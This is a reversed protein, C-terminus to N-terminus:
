QRIRKTEEIKQYVKNPYDELEDQIYFGLNQVKGDELWQWEYVPEQPKIRVEEFSVYNDKWLYGYSEISSKTKEQLEKTTDEIWEHWVDAYPHRNTGKTICVNSDFFEHLLDNIDRSSWGYETECDSLSEYLKVKTM